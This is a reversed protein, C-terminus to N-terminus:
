RRRGRSRPGSWASWRATCPRGATGSPAGPRSRGRTRAGAASRRPRPTGTRGARPGPRGPGASAPGPVGAGPRAAGRPGSRRLDGPGAAVAPVQGPQGAPQALGAPPEAPGVRDPSAGPAPPLLRDARGPRAPGALGGGPGGPREAPLGPCGPGPRHGAGGGPRRQVRQDAVPLGAAPGRVRQALGPRARSRRAPWGRRVRRAVTPRRGARPPEQVLPVQHRQPGHLEEGVLAQGAGVRLGGELLPQRGPEGGQGRRERGLHADPGLRQLAAPGAGPRGPLGAGDLSVQADQLGRQGAPGRPILRQPLDGGLVQGGLEGRQGPAVRSSASDAIRDSNPVSFARRTSNVLGAAGSVPRRTWGGGTSGSSSPRRARRSPRRCSGASRSM